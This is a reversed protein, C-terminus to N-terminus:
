NSDNPGAFSMSSILPANHKRRPTGSEVIGICKRRFWDSLSNLRIDYKDMMKYGIIGDVEM